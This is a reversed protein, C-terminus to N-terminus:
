HPFSPYIGSSSIFHSLFSIDFAVALIIETDLPYEKIM